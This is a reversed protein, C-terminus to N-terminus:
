LHFGAILRAEVAEHENLERGGRQAGRIPAHVQALASMAVWWIQGGYSVSPGAFLVLHEIEGDVVEAHARGEMGVSVRPALFWGVAGSAELVLERETEREFSGDASRELEWEWEMEAVLNLAMLLNGQRKDFLLKLELEVENPGIGPEFYLAFGIPDASPDSLQWKWENTIGQWVFRDAGETAVASWNLYLASQLNDTLGAELELRHDMARYYGNRGTRLTIWPELEVEGPPLTDTEYTYTFRREYASAPPAPLLGALLSAAAALLPSWRMTGHTM